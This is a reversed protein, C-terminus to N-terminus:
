EASKQKEFREAAEIETSVLTAVDTQLAKALKWLVEVTANVRANELHALYAQSTPVLDALQVQTLGLQGRRKAVNKGIWLHIPFEATNRESGAM